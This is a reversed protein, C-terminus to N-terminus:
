GMKERIRDAKLEEIDVDVVKLINDVDAFLQKRKAEKEEPTLSDEIKQQRALIANREDKTKANRMGVM